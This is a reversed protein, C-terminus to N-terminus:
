RNNHTTLRPIEQQLLTKQNEKYLQLSPKQGVSQHVVRQTEMSMLIRTIFVHVCSSIFFSFSRQGKVQIHASSEARGHNNEAVCVYVGEDRPTANQVTLTAVGRVFSAQAGAPHPRGSPPLPSM